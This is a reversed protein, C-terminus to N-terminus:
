QILHAGRYQDRILIIGNKIGVRGGIVHKAGMLIIKAIQHVTKLRAFHHARINIDEM